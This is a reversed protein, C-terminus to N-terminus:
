ESQLGRERGYATPHFESAAFEDQWTTGERLLYLIEVHKRATSWCAPIEDGGDSPLARAATCRGQPTDVQMDTLQLVSGDPDEAEAIVGEARAQSAAAMVVVVFIFTFLSM